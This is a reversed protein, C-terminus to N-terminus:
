YDGVATVNIGDHYLRFQSIRGTSLNAQVKNSITDAFVESLLISDANQIGPIYDTENDYEKTLKSILYMEKTPKRSDLEKSLQLIFDDPSNKNPQSALSSTDKGVVNCDQLSKRRHALEQM